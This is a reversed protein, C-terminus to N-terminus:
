NLQKYSLCGGQCKDRQYLNCELCRPFLPIQRLSSSYPDLTKRLMTLDKFKLLSPFEKFVALCTFVSLDPNVVPITNCTYRVASPKLVKLEDKRFACPIIPRSFITEVRNAKCEQIFNVVIKSLSAIEGPKVCVNDSYGPCSLTLHVNSKYKRALEIIEKDYSNQNINLQLGLRFGQERLRKLNDGFRICQKEDLSEKNYNLLIYSINKRPFVDLLSPEYLNNSAMIVQMRYIKVLRMLENFYLYETPEGGSLVFVKIKSKKMWGLLLNLNDLTMDEPFRNEL